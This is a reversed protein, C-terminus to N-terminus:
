HAAERLGSWAAEYVALYKCGMAERSHGREFTERAAAARRRAEDRRTLAEGLAAALADAQGPPVLWGDRGDKLVHGIEGVRTSVVPCGAAMAELLVIPLGEHDSSIVLVDAASLFALVDSRYGAFHVRNELGLSAVSTELVGREEGDGAFIVHTDAPLQQLAAIVLDNRKSQALRGVQVVLRSDAPISFERRLAAGLQPDGHPSEIGNEIKHVKRRPVGAELLEREIHESVAVVGDFSRLVFKDMAEWTRMKWTERYWTHCTSIRKWGSAVGPLALLIDPKYGHSHIVGPAYAKLARRLRGVMQAVPLRGSAFAEASIGM